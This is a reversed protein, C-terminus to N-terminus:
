VLIIASLASVLRMVLIGGGGGGAFSLQGPLFGPGPIGQAASLGGKGTKLFTAPSM